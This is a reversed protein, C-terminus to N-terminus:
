ADPPAGTGALSRRFANLADNSTGRRLEGAERAERQAAQWQEAFRANVALVRSGSYNPEATCSCHDHAEFRVGRATYAPGRSALMACFACPRGSTVRQWGRAQRDARVSQVLTRRGGGLVLGSATGLARVLGNRAAAEMSRGSRVAAIAGARGAVAVAERAVERPLPDALRPTALGGIGELRRFEEFYAAALGASDGHRQRILIDAAAAFRTFREMLGGQPFLAWLRALDRLVDARLALQVQRHAHTLQAGAASVAM